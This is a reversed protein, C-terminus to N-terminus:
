KTGKRRIPQGEAITLKGAGLVVSEGSAVGSLVQVLKGEAPGLTVARQRAMGDQVVFVSTAEGDRRIALEPLWYTEKEELASAPPDITARVNMDPLLYRDPETIRLTVRVVGRQRNVTPQIREVKGRYQRDPYADPVVECGRGVEVKQLDREQVDIEVELITLDALICLSTSLVEPRLIEGVQANKELVTGDLPASIRTNELFYKAKAVVAQAQQIDAEAAQLREIRAGKTLLQLKQDFSRVNAAADRVASRLQDYEAKTVSDGLQEARALEAAVLEAKSHATDLAARAQEIEEPQAGSKLEAHRSIAAALSAEAQQLDAVYSADDLQALLEGQKVLQGVDITLQTVTGPIRPSVNVKRYPVIYGSLELAQDAPTRVIVNATEFETPALAPIGGPKNQWRWRAGGGHLGFLLMWGVKRLFGGGSTSREVERLQLDSIARPPNPLNSM